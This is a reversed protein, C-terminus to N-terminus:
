IDRLSKNKKGNKIRNIKEKEEETYNINLTKEIETCNELFEKLGLIYKSDRKKKLYNIIIPNIKM